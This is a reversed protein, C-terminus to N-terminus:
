LGKRSVTIKNEDHLTHGSIGIYIDETRFANWVFRRKLSIKEGCLARSAILDDAALSTNQNKESNEQTDFWEKLNMGRMNMGYIKKVLDNFATVIGDSNIKAIGNM